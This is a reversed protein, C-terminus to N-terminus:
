GFFTFLTIHMCGSEAECMGVEDSVDVDEMAESWKGNSLWNSIQNVM